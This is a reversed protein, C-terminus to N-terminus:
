IVKCYEFNPRKFFYWNSVQVILKSTSTVLMRDFLIASTKFLNGNRAAMKVFGSTPVVHVLWVITIHHLCKGGM